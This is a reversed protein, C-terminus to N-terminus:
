SFCIIKFIFPVVSRFWGLDLREPASDFGKDMM